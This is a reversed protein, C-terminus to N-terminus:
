ISSTLKMFGERLSMLFLCARKKQTKLLFPVIKLRQSEGGSFSSANQGLTLYGLGLSQCASLISNIKRNHAFFESEDDISFNLVDVISKNKYKITQM